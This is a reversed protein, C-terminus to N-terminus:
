RPIYGENNGGLTEDWVKKIEIGASNSINLVRDLYEKKFKLGYLCGKDRLFPPTSVIDVGIGKYKLIKKLKVAATVSPVTVLM